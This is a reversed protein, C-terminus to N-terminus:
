NWVSLCGEYIHALDLVVKPSMPAIPDKCNDIARLTKLDRCRSKSGEHAGCSQEECVSFFDHNTAIDIEFHSSDSVFGIRPSSGLSSLMRLFGARRSLVTSIGPLRTLGNRRHTGRGVIFQSAGLGSARALPSYVSRMSGARRQALVLPLSHPRGRGPLFTVAASVQASM